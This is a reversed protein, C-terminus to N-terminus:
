RKTYGTLRSELETPRIFITPIADAKLRRRKKLGFQSALASDAELCDDTFVTVTNFVCQLILPRHIEM